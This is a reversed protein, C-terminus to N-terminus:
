SRLSLSLAKMQIVQILNSNILGLKENFVGSLVKTPQAMIVHASDIEAPSSMRIVHWGQLGNQYDQWGKRLCKFAAM